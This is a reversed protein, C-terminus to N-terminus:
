MDRGAERLRGRQGAAELRRPAPIVNLPPRNLAKDPNKPSQVSLDSPHPDVASPPAPPVPSQPHTLCDDHPPPPRTESTVWMSGGLVHPTRPMSPGTRAM